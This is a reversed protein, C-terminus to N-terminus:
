QDIMAMLKELPFNEEFQNKVSLSVPDNDWHWYLIMFQAAHRTLEQNWYSASFVVVRSGGKEENAWEGNFALANQVVAPQKLTEEDNSSIYDDIKRMQESKGGDGYQNKMEQLYSKLGLLYEKRTLSRWPLKGNHGIVVARANPSHVRPAYLTRGKWTGVKPPVLFIMIKKGDGRFDWDGIKNCFWGYQNVYVHIWNGTEDGLLIKNVNTNCYYTKYLSQFQYPVPGNAINSSGRLSRYWEAEFGRQDGIASRFLKQMSDMRAHVLKWQSRPFTKDAFVVDDELKKWRGCRALVSDIGGCIEASKIHAAERKNLQATSSSCTAYWAIIVIIRKM